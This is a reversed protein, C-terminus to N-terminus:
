VAEAFELMSEEASQTLPRMRCRVFTFREDELEELQESPLENLTATALEEACAISSEQTFDECLMRIRDARSHFELWQASTLPTRGELMDLQASILACVEEITNAHIKM